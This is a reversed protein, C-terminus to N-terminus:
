NFDTTVMDGEVIVGQSNSLRGVAQDAEVYIIDLNGLFKDGRVIWFRMDERVGSTSGVSIAVNNDEMDTIEGMIPVGAMTPMAQSVSVDSDFEKQALNYQDLQQNLSAIQEEMAAIQEARRRNTDELQSGRARENNLLRTLETVQTQAKLMSARNEDFSDWLEEQATQMNQITERMTSALKVATDSKSSELISQQKAQALESSLNGYLERLDKFRESSLELAKAYSTNNKALREEATYAVVHAADTYVKQEEYRQKYNEAKAMFTVVLGCLFISLLSVFLAFVKTITSM